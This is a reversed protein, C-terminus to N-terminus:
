FDKKQMINDYYNSKFEKYTVGSFVNLFLANSSWVQSVQEYRDCRLISNEGELVVLFTNSLFLNGLLSTMCRYPFTKNHLVYVDSLKDMHKKKM